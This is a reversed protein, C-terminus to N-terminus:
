YIFTNNKLMLIWSIVDSCLRGIYIQPVSHTKIVSLLGWGIWNWHGSDKICYRSWLSFASFLIEHHGEWCCSSIKWRERTWCGWIFVSEGCDSRITTYGAKERLKLVRALIQQLSQSHDTQKGQIKLRSRVPDARCNELLQDSRKLM